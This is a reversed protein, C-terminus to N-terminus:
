LRVGVQGLLNLAARPRVDGDIEIGYILADMGVGFTLYQGPTFEVMARGGVVPALLWYSEVGVGGEDTDPGYARRNFSFGVLPGISLDGIPMRALKRLAVTPMISATGVPYTADFVAESGTAASFGVGADLAWGVRVRGRIPIAAAITFAPGRGLVRDALQDGMAVPGGIGLRLTLHEGRDALREVKVQKKVSLHVPGAYQLLGTTKNRIRVSYLGPPAVLQGRTSSQITEDGSKFRLLNVSTNRVDGRMSILSALQPVGPVGALIIPKNLLQHRTLTPVQPTSRELLWTVAYDHAELDSVAGDLNTDVLGRDVHLAELFFYTYADNGLQEDEVARGLVTTTSVESEVAGVKWVYDGKARLDGSHCFAKILMRQDAGTRKFRDRVLTLKIATGPLDGRMSDSAVLYQEYRDQGTEEVAGHSSIYVLGLSRAPFHRESFAALAAEIGARDADYQVADLIAQRVASSVQVEQGIDDLAAEIAPRDSAIVIEDFRGVDPDLLSLAVDVVDHATFELVEFSEHFTPVGILLAIRADEFASASRAARDDSAAAPTALLLTLAAIVAAPLPNSSRM